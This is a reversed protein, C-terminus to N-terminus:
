ATTLGNTQFHRYTRRAIEESIRTGFLLAALFWKFIKGSNRDTLFIDLETAYTKGKWQLLRPIIQKLSAPKM